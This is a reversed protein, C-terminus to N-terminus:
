VYLVASDVQPIVVPVIIGLSGSWDLELTYILPMDLGKNCACQCFTLWGIVSTTM